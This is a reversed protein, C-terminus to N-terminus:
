TVALRPSASLRSARSKASFTSCVAGPAKSRESPPKSKREGTKLGPPPRNATAPWPSETSTQDSSPLPGKGRGPWSDLGFAAFTAEQAESSM